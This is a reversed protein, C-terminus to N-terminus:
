PLCWSEWPTFTKINSKVREYDMSDGWATKIQLNDSKENQKLICFLKLM